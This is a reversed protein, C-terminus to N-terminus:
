AKVLAEVRRAVEDPGPLAAIEAALGAAAEAYSPNTIIEQCTKAIVESTAEEPTLVVAAGTEALRRAMDAARYMRTDPILVQPVGFTLGTMMTSGGTQHVLVDCTPAVVDLPIWGARVNQLRERLTPAADETVAVVVESDLTAINEVVGQLFDYQNYSAVGTGITVGIRSGEGRTYMWPELVAQSNGPIWRMMQAPAADAPRMSPPAIEITMAPEPLGDLGLATLQERLQEQAGQDMFKPDHIDWAHRVYPVGLHASLLPGAYSTVGSIIVDPRWDKSLALLADLTVYEMHAYWRGAMIERELPEDPVRTLGSQAIIQQPTLNPDTVRVAALGVGSITPMLEDVSATTMVQHGANRLANALPVHSFVTSPAVGALVLVKM